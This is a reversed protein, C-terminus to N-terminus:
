PHLDLISITTQTDYVFWFCNRPPFYWGKCVLGGVEFGEPSSKRELGWAIGLDDLYSCHSPSGLHLASNKDGDKGEECGVM